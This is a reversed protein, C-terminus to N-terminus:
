IIDKGEARSPATPPVPVAAAAKSSPEGPATSPAPPMKPVRDGPHASQDVLQAQVRGTKVSSVRWKAANEDAFVGLLEQGDFACYVWQGHTTNSSTADARVVLAAFEQPMRLKVCSALLRPSTLRGLRKATLTPVHRPTASASTDGRDERRATVRGYFVCADSCCLFACRAAM